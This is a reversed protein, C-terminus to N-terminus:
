ISRVQTGTRWDDQWWLVRDQVQLLRGPGLEFPDYSNSDPTWGLLATIVALRLERLEKHAERGTADRLNKVAICVGFRDVVQQTVVVTAATNRGPTASLPLVFAAPSQKLDQFAAVLDAAGTIRKFEKVQDVLREIVLEPDFLTIGAM